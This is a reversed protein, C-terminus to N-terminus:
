AQSDRYKQTILSTKSMSAYIDVPGKVSKSHHEVIRVANISVGEEALIKAMLDCMSVSEGSGVNYIEGANGYQMIAKYHVIAEDISIYDRKSSLDGLIIKSIIGQKYDDIQKYLTGIFLKESIGKGLLNFARAMVVNMHFVRAYYQMLNTQMVKTLGYISVPRMPSNELVKSGSVDGYEAASGVLLLRSQLNLKLIGDLINKSAVVNNNYDVEYRNSFTGALHFIQDPKTLELMNLVANSDCLDCRICNGEDVHRMVRIVQNSSNRALEVALHRGAFGSAGTVLVTAM